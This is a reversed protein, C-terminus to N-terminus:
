PPRLLEGWFYGGPMHFNDLHPHVARSSALLSDENCTLPSSNKSTRGGMRIRPPSSCCETALPCSIKPTSYCALNRWMAPDRLPGGAGRHASTGLLQIRRLVARGCCRASASLPVDWRMLDSRLTPLALGSLLKAFSVRREEFNRACEEASYYHPSLFRPPPAEAYGDCSLCFM